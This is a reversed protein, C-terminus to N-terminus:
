SPQTVLLSSPFELVFTTGVGITSKATITGGHEQMLKQTVALGLGTGRNGKTSFFPTFLKALVEKEMGCGNDEVRLCFGGGESYSGGSITLIVQANNRGSCADLANGVLNLLCRRMASDDLLVQEPAHNDHKILLKVQRLKAQEELTDVVDYCIDNLNCLSPTPKRDKSYALMNLVIDNLLRMNRKVTQWGNNIKECSDVALQNDIIYSGAHIGNLINKICHAMGAIAQGISALREARVLAEHERANRLAVAAQTALTDARKLDASRFGEAKRNILILLGVEQEQAVLPLALLSGCPLNLVNWDPHNQLNNIIGKIRGTVLASFMPTESFVAILEEAAEGFARVLVPYIKEKVEYRFIAGWGETENHTEFERLIAAAVEEQNLSRNIQQSARQLLAMERYSELTEAAVAHRAHEALALEGGIGAIFKILIATQESSSSIANWALEAVTEGEVVIFETSVGVHGPIPTELTDQGVRALCKGEQWLAIIVGTPLITEAQKLLLRAIRPRMPNRNLGM